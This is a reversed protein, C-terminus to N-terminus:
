AVLEGVPISLWFTAGLGPRNWLGATGGHAQAIGRVIALGLGSGSSSSGQRFPEFLLQELGAPVGGGQDEVEFRWARHGRAVRLDVPEQGTTHVAANQLLNLLAQTLRQPDAALMGHPPPAVRLRRGLLPSAKVAVDSVFRDLWITERRLFAPDEIRVLTTIDDVIRGMRALEDVVVEMADAVERASPNPGLVELHGRCITIPTRLEHSVATMFTTRLEDLARLRAADQQERALAEETRALRRTGWALAEGVLVCTPIALAASTFAAGAGKHLMIIPAVYALTAIPAMWTSTWLPHTIGIWVFVVVFFVGYSHPDSDAGFYNGSAILGLALPILWLSASRPWRDWPAVWALLGAVMAVATIAVIAPRNINPAAPLPLTALTVLGSGFLLVGALRGLLKLRSRVTERELIAM